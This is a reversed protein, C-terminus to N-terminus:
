EEGAKSKLRSILDSAQSKSLETVTGTGYEELMGAVISDATITGAADLKAILRMINKTQPGSLREASVVEVAEAEVIMEEAPTAELGAMVMVFGLPQRLAKSTARTQAMSRLAYEDRNAWTKESRTCQAEAAGVLQGALTRAEVRAEWGNELKRSWVCVPFVGLMTGCLTWAEVRPYERGQINVMLKKKRVVAILANATEGARAVIENPNETRFLTIAQPATMPEAGTEAEIKALASM